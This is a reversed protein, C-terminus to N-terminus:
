EADYLHALDSARLQASPADLAITGKKLGIVRTCYTLAHAIDHLALVVTTHRQCILELLKAAQYEDVNAQQILARGISTRQQQGGSLQEASYFLQEHLGLPGSIADVASRAAPLPKVLNLLNYFFGHRQLNGMHINHFVSLMPVLGPQQPCWAVEAPCQQRLAKLLTSKGAGSGGLLAIREGRFIRLDIDNLVIKNQYRLCQRHLEFLPSDM